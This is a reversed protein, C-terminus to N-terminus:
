KEKPTGPQGTATRALNISDLVKRIAAYEFPTGSPIGLRSGVKLTSTQDTVLIRKNEFATGGANAVSKVQLNWVEDFKIPIEEVGKGTLLPVISKIAGADDTIEREHCLLLFNKDASLLMDIFQAVMSREAGYDQMKPYVIGTNVAQAYTQSSIGLAKSGLMHIAKNLAMQSLTTGSDVVWTDFKDRNGATMWKDFYRCADDFANPELIMGAKGKKKEEFQEFELDPLLGHRKTFDPHKLTAIGRDFDMFNPRPFTGAGQTKGSKFRGFVLARVQSSLNYDALKM